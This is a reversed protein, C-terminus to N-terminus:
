SAEVPEEPPVLLVPIPAMAAVSAGVSSSFIREVLSLRRSGTILVCAQERECAALIGTGTPGSVILARASVKHGDLWRSLAAEGREGAELHARDWANPAVYVQLTNQVTVAHVVVLERGVVDAFLKAFALASDSNPELDTALVVPGPPLEDGLDPPVIAVPAPMQRLLRRAVAGLRVISTDDAAPAKRGIILASGGKVQLAQTLGVEGTDAEVVSVEDVEVDLQAVAGQALGLVWQRFEEETKDSLSLRLPQPTLVHVGTFREGPAHRRIWAAFRMAGHSLDLLDLGVIWRM